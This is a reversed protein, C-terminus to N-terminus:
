TISPALPKLTELTKPVTLPISNPLEGPAAPMYSESRSEPNDYRKMPTKSLSMPQMSKMEVPVTTLPELVSEPVGPETAVAHAETTAHAATTAAAAGIVAASTSFSISALTDSCKSILFGKLIANITM